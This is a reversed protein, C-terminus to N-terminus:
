SSSLSLRMTQAAAAAVAAIGHRHAAAHKHAVQGEISGPLHPPPGRHSGNWSVEARSLAPEGREPQEAATHAGQKRMGHKKCGSNPEDTNGESGARRGLLLQLVVELLRATHRM